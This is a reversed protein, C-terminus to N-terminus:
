KVINIKKKYNKTNKLYSTMEHYVHAKVKCYLTM